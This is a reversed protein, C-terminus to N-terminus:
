LFYTKDAPNKPPQKAKIAPLTQCSLTDQDASSAENPVLLRQSGTTATAFTPGGTRGTLVIRVSWHSKRSSPAPAEQWRCHLHGGTGLEGTPAAWAWSVPLTPSLAAM